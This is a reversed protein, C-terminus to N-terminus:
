VASGGVARLGGSAADDEAPPAAFQACIADLQPEPVGGAFKASVWQYVTPSYTEGLMTRLRACAQVVSLLVPEVERLPGTELATGRRPMYTPVPTAHVDAMPDVVGAYAQAHRKRAKAAEELSPLASLPAGPARYAERVAQNRNRDVQSYAAQRYGEGFVQADAAFGYEDTEVPAVTHWTEEGTERNVMRVDISPARYANVQLLVKQGTPIEPLHELSYTRSGYPKVSMSLTRDNEVRRTVPESTVLERLVAENPVTRLQEAKIRLWTAYRPEKTRTHVKTSCWHACWAEVGANLSDITITDRDMFPLGGEYGREVLDGFKEVSGTANAVGPAHHEVRVKLNRAFNLWEKSTNGPGRDMYVMFPVGHMPSAEQKQVAWIFFDILARSCENGMFYRVKGAHSTHDAVAYRTILDNVVRAFNAPKNKYFEEADMSRMRGTKDKYLVSTSSDIQWVHNPHLSAMRQTPKPRAMQEPHMSNDRLLQMVRGASLSAPLKGNARLCDIAREAGWLQKANDRRSIRLVGSVLSLADETMASTGADRRRKRGTEMGVAALKRYVTQASCQLQQAAAAIIVSKERHPAAELAERATLLVQWETPSMTTM